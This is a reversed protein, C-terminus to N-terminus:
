GHRDTLGGVAPGTREALAETAEGMEAALPVVALSAMLFVALPSAHVGALLWSVPVAVLGLRLWRV